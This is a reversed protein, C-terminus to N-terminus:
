ARTKSALGTRIGQARPTLAIASAKSTRSCTLPAPGEGSEARTEQNEAAKGSIEGVPGQRTSTLSRALNPTMHCSSLLCINWCIPSNEKIIFWLLRFFIPRGPLMGITKKKVTARDDLTSCSKLWTRLPSKLAKHMDALSQFLWHALPTSM